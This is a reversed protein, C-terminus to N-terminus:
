KFIIEWEGTYYRKVKFIGDEEGQKFAEANMLTYRDCRELLQDCGYYTSWKDFCVGNYNDRCEEHMLLEKLDAKVMYFSLVLLIILATIGLGIKISKKM